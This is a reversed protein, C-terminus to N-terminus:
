LVLLSMRILWWLTACNGLLGTRDRFAGGFKRFVISDSGVLFGLYTLSEAQKSHAMGVM